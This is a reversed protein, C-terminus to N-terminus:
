GAESFQQARAFKQVHLAIGIHLTPRLLDVRARGHLAAPDHVPRIPRQLFLKPFPVIRAIEIRLSLILNLHRTSLAKDGRM